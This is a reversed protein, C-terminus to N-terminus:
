RTENNEINYQHLSKTVEKLGEICFNLDLNMQKIEADMEKKYHPYLNKIEQESKCMSADKLFSRLIFSFYSKKSKKKLDNYRNKIERILINSEMSVGNVSLNKVNKFYSARSVRGLTKIPFKEYKKNFNTLADTIDNNLLKYYKQALINNKFFLIPM